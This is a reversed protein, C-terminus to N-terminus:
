TATTAPVKGRMYLLESKTVTLPVYVKVGATRFWQTLNPDVVVQLQSM